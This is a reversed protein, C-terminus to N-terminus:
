VALPRRPSFADGPDAGPRVGAHAADLCGTRQAPHRPQHFHCQGDGMAPGLQGPRPVAGADGVPDARGAGRWPDFGHWRAGGHGPGHDVGDPHVVRPQCLGPLQLVACRVRRRFHRGHRVGAAQPQAQEAGHGRCGSRGRAPGDLCPRYAISGPTQVARHQPHRHGPLVPLLQDGAVSASRVPELEAAAVAATSGGGGPCAGM